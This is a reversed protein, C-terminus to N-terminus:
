QWEPFTEMLFNEVKVIINESCKRDTSINRLHFHVKFRSPSCIKSLPSPLNIRSFIMFIETCVPQYQGQLFYHESGNPLDIFTPLLPPLLPAFGGRGGLFYM